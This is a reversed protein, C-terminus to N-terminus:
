QKRAILEAIARAPPDPWIELDHEYIWGRSFKSALEGPRLLFDPNMPKVGTREDVLPIAMAVLGGHKLWRRISAFLSRQLYMTVVILDWLEEGPDFTTLDALVTEVRADRDCLIELAVQSSDVSTVACGHAAFLLSHRGAGCALDLVRSGPATREALATLFAMPRLNAHDGKSYREDWSM